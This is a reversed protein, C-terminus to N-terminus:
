GSEEWPVAKNLERWLKESESKHPPPSLGQVRWLRRDTEDVHFEWDYGRDAIHPKLAQDIRSSVSDYVKDENPLRVAIHDIQLRIFPTGTNPLGGIFMSTGPLKIFNVIVYFKPLAAPGEHYISTIDKSLAEKSAIDEFTGEPHYINWLPM